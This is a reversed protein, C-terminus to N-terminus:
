VVPHYERFAEEPARLCAQDCGRSRPWRSCSRVRRLSRMGLAEALGARAIHVTADAVTHPCRVLKAARYAGAMAVAVPVLVFVVAVIVLGLLVTSPTM